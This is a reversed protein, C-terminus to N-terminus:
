DRRLEDVTVAEAIRWVGDAKTLRLQLERADVVREGPGGNSRSFTVALKVGATGQAADLDITIEDFQLRYADSRPPLRAAMAIVSERGRIPVAGRGLDIHVDPTFFNGIQAARSVTGLGEAADENVVAALTDLRRRIVREENPWWVYWAAIGSALVVAAVAASKWAM